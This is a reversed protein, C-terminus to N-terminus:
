SKGKKNIVKVYYKKGLRSITESIRKEYPLYIPIQQQVDDNEKRPKDCKQLSNKITRKITNYQLM